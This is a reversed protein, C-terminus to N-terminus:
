AVHMLEHALLKKGQSTNPAYQGADFVVHRGVTYASAHIAQASDKACTDTHVRVRSFDHGFRPEMFGRTAADLPQGRSRLVEQVISPIESVVLPGASARQPTREDRQRCSECEDSGLTHNRCACIRHLFVGTNVPASKAATIAETKM